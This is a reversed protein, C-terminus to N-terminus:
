RGKFHPKRKEIFAQRGERLDESLFATETLTEAETRRRDDLSNGQLLLNIVRKTGRLALPANAAIEAAM